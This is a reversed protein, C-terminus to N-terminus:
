RASPACVSLFVPMSPSSASPTCTRPRSAARADAVIVHGIEAALLDHTMPPPLTAISTHACRLAGRRAYPSNRRDGGGPHIHGRMGSSTSPATASPTSSTLMALGGTRMSVFPCPWATASQVCGCIMPSISSLPRGLGSFAFSKSFRMAASPITTAMPCPTSVCPKSCLLIVMLRPAKTASALPWISLMSPTNAPPSQTVPGAVTMRAMAAPLTAAAFM